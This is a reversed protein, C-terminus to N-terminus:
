TGAPTLQVLLITYTAIAGVAGLIFPRDIFCFYGSTLVLRSSQLGTELLLVQGSAQWDNVGVTTPLQKAEQVLEKAEIDVSSATLSLVLFIVAYYTSDLASQRSSVGKALSRVSLVLNMIIDLFWLFVLTSYIHDTRKMDKWVDYSMDQYRKVDQSQTVGKKLNNEVVMKFQRIRAKIKLSATVYDAMLLGPVISLIDFFTLNFFAAAAVSNMTLNTTTINLGYLFDSCYESIDGNMVFDSSLAVELVVYGVVFSKLFGGLTFFRFRGGGSDEISLRQLLRKSPTSIAFALHLNLTAFFSRTVFSAIDLVKMMNHVRMFTLGVNVTTHFTYAYALLLLPWKLCSVKSLFGTPGSELIRMYLNSAFVHQSGEGNAIRAKAEM